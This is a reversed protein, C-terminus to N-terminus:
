KLMHEVRTELYSRAEIELEESSKALDAIHVFREIDVVSIRKSDIWKVTANKFPDKKFPDSDYTVLVGQRGRDRTAAPNIPQYSYTDGIIVKTIRKPTRGWYSLIINM